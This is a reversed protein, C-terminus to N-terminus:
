HSIVHAAYRELLDDWHDYTDRSPENDANWGGHELRVTTSDQGVETFTVRLETPYAPPHGLWFDMVLQVGPEWTTMRGWVYNDGGDHVTAVDGRPDIEIGTFTSADPTLLPDWWEGMQATFAVFAKTRPVPVTTEAVIPETPM